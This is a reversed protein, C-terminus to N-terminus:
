AMIIKIGMIVMLLVSIGQLYPIFGKAEVKVVKSVLLLIGAILTPSLILGLGYMLGYISGKILSGSKAALM